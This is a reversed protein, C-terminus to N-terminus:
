MPRVKKWLAELRTREATWDFRQGRTNEADIRLDLYQGPGYVEQCVMLKEDPFTDILRHHTACLLLLNDLRTRTRAYGRPVIHCCQLNATTGCGPYQCYQRLRVLQRALDDCKAKDGKARAITM